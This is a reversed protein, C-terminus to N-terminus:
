RFICPQFDNEQRLWGILSRNQRHLHGHLTAAESGDAAQVPRTFVEQLKRLYFRRTEAELYCTGDKCQFAALELQGKRVLRLACREVLHRFPEMLDSALAAHGPAPQHYIGLAPQLGDARLLAETHAYLISYGLSLLANFADPPPRRERTNFGWGEPLIQRLGEYYLRTANGEIGNLQKLNEAELTKDTERKLNKRQADAEVPLQRLIERMHRIRAQVLGRALQLCDRPQQLRNYQLQWLGLRGEEFIASTTAGLYDGSLACFHVPVAERMAARLAPTTIHHPGILVVSNLTAWPRDVLIKGDRVIQLHGQSTNIVSSEGAVTLLSGEDDIGRPKETSGTRSGTLQRIIQEENAEERPPLGLLTRWPSEHAPRPPRSEDSITDNEFYLGLFRFSNEFHTHGTKEPNLKLKLEALSRRVEAEARKSCQATKSLVVFDDAYRISRFGKAALDRDFDDLILNALLPSVPAGQPLGRSRQHLIEGDDLPAQVWNMIREVLPDNRYLGRLRVAIDRWDVTPFFDEIDAEFVHHYGDEWAQHIAQAATHRSRQKRYGHSNRHFYKELAPSLLQILARQAVREMFPPIALTRLEGNKKPIERLQLPEVTDHSDTLRNKLWTKNKDSLPRQQRKNRQNAIKWAQELNTDSAARYTLSTAPSLLPLINATEQRDTELRYRGLGFATQEGMGLHQGLVMARLWKEEMDPLPPFRLEGLLGGLHKWHAGSKYADEVWFLRKDEFHLQPPEPIDKGPTYPPLSALMCRRLLYAGSLDEPNRCYREKSGGRTQREPQPLEMRLPSTWRWVLSNEQIYGQWLRTEHTLLEEDYPRLAALNFPTEPALRDHVDVLRLNDRFPHKARARPAGSFGSINQLRSLLRELLPLGETSVVLGFRYRDGARFRVRGDECTELRLNGAYPIDRQALITRIYGTLQGRHFFPLNAHETFELTIAVTYFPFSCAGM